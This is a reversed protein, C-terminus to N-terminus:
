AELATKSFTRGMDSAKMQFQGSVVDQIMLGAGSPKLALNLHDFAQHLDEWSHAEELAMTLEAKHGQTWSVFSQEWTIVNWIRAPAHASPRGLTEGQRMRIETLLDMVDGHALGGEDIGLKLLNGLRALGANVKLLDRIMDQGQRDPLVAGIVLRHILESGSIRVKGALVELRTKEAPMLYAKVCVRRM